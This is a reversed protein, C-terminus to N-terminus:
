YINSDVLYKPRGKQQLWATSRSNWSQGPRGDSKGRSDCFYNSRGILRVNNNVNKM